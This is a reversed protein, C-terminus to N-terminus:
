LGARAIGGYLPLRGKFAEPPTDTTTRRIPLLAPGYATTRGAPDGFRGGIAISPMLKSAPATTPLRTVRVTPAFLSDDPLAWEERQEDYEARSELQVTV